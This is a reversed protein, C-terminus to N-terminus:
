PGFFSAHSFVHLLFSLSAPLALPAIDTEYWLRAFPTWLCRPFSLLSLCLSLQLLAAWVETAGHAFLRDGTTSYVRVNVAVQSSFHCSHTFSCALLFLANCGLWWLLGCWCAGQRGSM